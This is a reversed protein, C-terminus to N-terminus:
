KKDTWTKLRNLGKSVLQKALKSKNYKEKYVYFKNSIEGLLLDREDYPTKHFINDINNFGFITYLSIKGQRVHKMWDYTNGVQCLHYKDIAVNNTSCYKAIFILSSRIFELSEDSDPDIETLQKKYLTYSRTAAPTVYFELPFYDKDKWIKFPSKFFIQTDINPFRKFFHELKILINYEKTKEFDDFNVRKKYPRNKESRTISLHQNYLTKINESVM